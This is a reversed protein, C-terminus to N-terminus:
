DPTNSFGLVYGVNRLKSFAKKSIVSQVKRRNQSITALAFLLFPLFFQQHEL